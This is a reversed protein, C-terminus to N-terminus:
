VLDARDIVMLRWWGDDDERDAVRRFGAKELARWSAANAVLPAAAAQTWTPHRGFVVDAVFARIMTSGRGRGREGPEAVLYDIGAM